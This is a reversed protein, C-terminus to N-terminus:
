VNNCNTPEKTKAKKRQKVLNRLWEIKTTNNTDDLITKIPILTKEIKNCHRTLHELTSEEIGCLDCKREEENLWYKNRNEENGCRIRAILNQSGKDGKNRLYEPIDIVRSEKYRRNYRTAKIKNYQEQQQVERDRARLITKANVEESELLRLGEGSYGCRNIYREEQNGFTKQNKKKEKLCAKAITKTSVELNREFTWARQSWGIKLKERKVEELLIYEPTCRDLGLTWKIYKNQIRELTAREEWGWIEVGYSIISKVLTDFLKMRTKFDNKFLREGIGWVQKVAVNGKRALEKVHGEKSGNRRLQYGLYTFEKVEEINKGEWKWIRAKERGGGKRFVMVKSKECNLTLKKRKLYKEFSRMMSQLEEISNALLVIADAYALTWFKETGVVIGGTQRKKMENEMDAILISFLTPSLPCGQRVGEITWFEESLTDNVKVVNKTEEYIQRVRNILGVQIGMKEMTKWLIVRDVKDFAAKLDVFFAYLKGKTKTLEREVVHQLIYINDMTSRGKRFGAQTDPLIQKDHLERTLRNNLM